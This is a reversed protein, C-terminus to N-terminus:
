ENGAAPTIRVEVRRRSPAALGDAAEMPAPGPSAKAAVHLRAAPVGRLRMWEAVKEARARALSIPEALSRGSVITPNTDAYGTISIDAPAVDLAYYTMQDVYYDSLQYTIFDSGFDFAIAFDRPAFPKAAPVREAYLPRVNRKPLVFKRGPFGEAPLMKRTCPQDRLVSVRAPDLVVGGCVNTQANAKRGEVLVAFNWDPKTPSPSMDYRVGTDPDDALWCGSKAGFDADRYIPCAIFRVEDDALAQSACSLAGVAALLVRRRM